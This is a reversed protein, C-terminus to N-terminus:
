KKRGTRRPSIHGVKQGPSSNRKAIKPKIRKGRGSGFPHDVANVKIASTRHWKRGLALMRHHQKGAKVLPKITRGDGAVVGITARCDKNFLKKKKNTIAVEVGKSDNTIVLASSGASRLIKGGKGPALEINCVKTGIPINKLQVINGNAITKNIEIEQGEYIGNVAPNFFIEDGIKIKVLPASHGSSDFLKTIKAKGTTKLLPYNIKYSFAKRKVRFTLSGKGRAQQTIRKGM